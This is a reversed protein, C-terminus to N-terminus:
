EDNDQNDEEKDDTSIDNLLQQIRMGKEISPDFEFNIEPIYKIALLRGLQVQVSKKRRDLYKAANEKQEDNGLVSYYITAYRLDNTLEVDTFTVMSNLNLLCEPDLIERVDRLMQHRIRDARKFQRM